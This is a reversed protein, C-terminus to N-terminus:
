KKRAERPIHREFVEKCDAYRYGRLRERGVTMRTAKIGYPKLLHGLQHENLRAWEPDEGLRALLDKTFMERRAKLLPEMALLVRQGRSMRVELSDALL